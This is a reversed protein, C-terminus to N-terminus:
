RRKDILGVRALQNHHKFRMCWLRLSILKPSFGACKPRREPRFCFIAPSLQSNPRATAEPLGRCERDPVKCKCATDTERADRNWLDNSSSRQCALDSDPPQLEPQAENVRGVVSLKATASVEDGSTRGDLVQAAVRPASELRAVGLNPRPHPTPPGVFPQPTVM